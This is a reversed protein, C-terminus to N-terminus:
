INAIDIQPLDIGVQGNWYKLASAKVRGKNLIGIQKEPIDTLEIHMPHSHLGKVRNISVGVSLGAPVAVAANATLILKGTGVEFALVTGVATNNVALNLAGAGLAGGATISLATVGDAAAVYVVANTEDAVFKFDRALATKNFYAAHQVAAEGPDAAGVPTYSYVRGKYTFSGVTTASVTATVYPEQILLVDGPIFVYPTAADVLNTGTTLATNVYSAPWARDVVNGNDDFCEVIFTGPAVTRRGKADPSVFTAHLNAAEDYCAGESVALVYNDLNYVDTHKFYAM